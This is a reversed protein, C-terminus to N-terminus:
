PKGIIEQQWAAMPRFLAALNDPLESRGAKTVLWLMWTVRRHGMRRRLSGLSLHLRLWSEHHHFRQVKSVEPLVPRIRVGCNKSTLDFCGVGIIAPWFAQFCNSVGFWILRSANAEHHDLDLWVETSLLKACVHESREWLLNIWQSMLSAFITHIDQSMQAICIYSIYIYRYIYWIITM